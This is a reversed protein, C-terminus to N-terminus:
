PIAAANAHISCLRDPLSRRVRLLLRGSNVGIIETSATDQPLARILWDNNLDGSGYVEFEPTNVIYGCFSEIHMPLWPRLDTLIRDSTNTGLYQFALDVDTLYVVRKTLSEPGSRTLRLFSDIDAAVIPLDPNGHQLLFRDEPEGPGATIYGRMIYSGGAWVVLGALMLVALADRGPMSDLTLAVLVSVGLTASLVYRDAFPLHLQRTLLFAIVPLILFGAVAAVEHPPFGGDRRRLSVTRERSFWVAYSAIAGLLVLLLAHGNRLLFAFYDFEPHLLGHKAAYGRSAQILPICFALPILPALFAAWIRWDIRKERLTRVLEGLALPGVILVGFYHSATAGALSVALMVSALGSRREVAAQWAILALGTMGLLLGYGRAEMAFSVAQTTFPVLMAAFAVIRSTRRAVFRFLCLEMVLFGLVAPLRLAFPGSGFLSMSAHTLILFSPPHSEAGTLLAKWIEPLPLRALYFTLYEDIWLSRHPAFHFMIGLYGIVFAAILIPTRKEVLYALRDPTFGLRKPSPQM